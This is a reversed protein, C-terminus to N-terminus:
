PWGDCIVILPKIDVDKHMKGCAHCPSGWSEDSSSHITWRLPGGNMGMSFIVFWHWISAFTSM